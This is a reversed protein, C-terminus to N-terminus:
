KDRLLERMYDALGIQSDGWHGNTQLQKSVSRIGGHIAIAIDLSVIERHPCSNPLLQEIDIQLTAVEREEPGTLDPCLRRLHAGLDPESM